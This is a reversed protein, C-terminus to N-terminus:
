LFLCRDVGFFSVGVDCDLLFFLNCALDQVENGRLFHRLVHSLHGLARLLVPLVRGLFVGDLTYVDIHQKIKILLRHNGCTLFQVVPVSVQNLTPLRSSLRVEVPFTDQSRGSVKQTV